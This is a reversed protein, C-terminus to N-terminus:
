IRVVGQGTSAPIPRASSEADTAEAAPGALVAAILLPTSASPTLESPPNACPPSPTLNAGVPVSPRGAEHAHPTRRVTPEVVNLSDISDNVNVAVVAFELTSAVSGALPVCSRM